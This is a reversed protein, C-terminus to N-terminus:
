ECPRGASICVRTVNFKLNGWYRCMYPCGGWLRARLLRLAGFSGTSRLEIANAAGFLMPIVSSHM